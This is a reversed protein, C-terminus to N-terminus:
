LVDESPKRSALLEFVAAALREPLVPKPIFSDFGARLAAAREEPLVHATLAVVPVNAFASEAKLIRMVETGTKGPMRIDLLIVDPNCTRAADLAADGDTATVVDYGHFRLYDAYMECADVFDDAILVRPGSTSQRKM